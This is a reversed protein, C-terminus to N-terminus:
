AAVTSIKPPGLTKVKTTVTAGLRHGGAAGNRAGPVMRGTSAHSAYGFFPGRYSWGPDPQRRDREQLAFVVAHWRASEWRATKALIRQGSM